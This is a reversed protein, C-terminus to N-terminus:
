AQGQLFQELILAAAATDVDGDAGPEDPEDIPVLVLPPPSDDPRTVGGTPDDPSRLQEPPVDVRGRYFHRMEDVNETKIAFAMENRDAGHVDKALVAVVDSSTPQLLSALAFALAAAAPIVTLGAM